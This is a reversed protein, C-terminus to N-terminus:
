GVMKAKARNALGQLHVRRTKGRFIPVGLLFLPGLWRSHSFSSIQHSRSKAGKGILVQM